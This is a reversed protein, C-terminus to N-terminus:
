QTVPPQGGGAVLQQLGDGALAGSGAMTEAAAKAMPGMGKDMMQAQMQQKQAAEQEAQVQEKTKLLGDVDVGAGLFIRKVLDAINVQQPAEPFVAALKAVMEIADQLRQLDHGRGIAALGTVVQPTVSGKPLPKLARRRVLNAELRKALPLQLTQSLLSYVGGLNDELEEAM